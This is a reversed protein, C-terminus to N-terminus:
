LHNLKSRDLNVDKDVSYCRFYDVNNLYWKLIETFYNEDQHRKDTDRYKKLEDLLTYVQENM